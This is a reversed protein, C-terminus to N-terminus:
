LEHFGRHRVLEIPNESVGLLPVGKHYAERVVVIEMDKPSHSHYPFLIPLKGYPPGMTPPGQFDWQGTNPVQSGNSFFVKLTWCSQLFWKSIPHTKPQKKSSLSTPFGSFGMSRWPFSWTKWPSFGNWVPIVLWWDFVGKFLFYGGNVPWPHNLTNPIMNSYM